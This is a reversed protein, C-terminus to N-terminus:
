YQFILFRAYLVLRMRPTSKTTFVLIMQLLSFLLYSLRQPTLYPNKFVVFSFILQNMDDTFHDAQVFDIQELYADLFENTSASWGKQCLTPLKCAREAAMDELKKTTITARPM